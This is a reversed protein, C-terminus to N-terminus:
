QRVFLGSVSRYIAYALGYGLNRRRNTIIYWVVTKVWPKSKSSHPKLKLYRGSVRPGESIQGVKIQERWLLFPLSIQDRRVKHVYESWWDEMLAVVQPDHHRRLMVFNETLGFNRPFGAAEYDQLQKRAATADVLGDEVCYKAEEYACRRDQHVPMAISYKGLYRDFLADPCRQIVVHGDLYLSEDYDALFRHPLMKYRRNALAPADGQSDVTVKRWGPAALRPNDTFCVFECGCEPDVRAVEDYNGFVATYVVRRPGPARHDSESMPAQM